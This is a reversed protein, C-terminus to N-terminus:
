DERHLGGYLMEWNINMSDYMLKLTRLRKGGTLLNKYYEM